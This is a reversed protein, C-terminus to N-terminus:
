PPRAAACVEGAIRQIVVDVQRSENVLLTATAEDGEKPAYSVNAILVVEGLRGDGAQKRVCKVNVLIPQFKVKRPLITIAKLEVAASQGIRHKASKILLKNMAKILAAQFEESGLNPPHACWWANLWNASEEKAPEM